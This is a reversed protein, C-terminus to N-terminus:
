DDDALPPFGRLRLDIREADLGDLHLAQSRRVTEVIRRILTGVGQDTDNAIAELYDYQEQSLLVPVKLKNGHEQPM